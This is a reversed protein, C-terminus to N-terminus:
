ETCCGKWIQVDPGLNYQADADGQEAARQYWQAAEKHDQAVGAGLRYMQALNYQAEAHGQEAARQYWQAALKDDRPVGEGYEYMVGLNYQADADSQEAARQYWQAAVKDNEAVGIGNDYMVGLNFQASANGQEALPEWERLATAYDGKEYAALGRELDANASLGAGGLLVIFLLRFLTKLHVPRLNAPSRLISLLNLTAHKM